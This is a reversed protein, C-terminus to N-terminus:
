MGGVEKAELILFEGKMHAHIDCWFPVQVTGSTDTVSASHSEKIFRLTMSKGPDLHYAMFGKNKSDTMEVGDGQKKLVGKTFMSSTIGHPITGKNQVVIATLAESAMHGKVSFGMDTITVEVTEAAATQATSLGVLSMVTLTAIGMTVPILRRRLACITKKM